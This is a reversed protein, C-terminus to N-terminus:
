TRGLATLVFDRLDILEADISAHEDKEAGHCVDKVRQRLGEIRGWCEESKDPTGLGAENDAAAIGADADISALWKSIVEAVKEKPGLNQRWVEGGDPSCAWVCGDADPGEIQILPGQERANEM